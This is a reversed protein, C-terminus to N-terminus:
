GRATLFCFLSKQLQFPYQLAVGFHDGVVWHFHAEGSPIINQQAGTELPVAAVHVDDHVPLSPSALLLATQATYHTPSEEAGALVLTLISSQTQDSAEVTQALNGKFLVPPLIDVTKGKWSCVGLKGRM